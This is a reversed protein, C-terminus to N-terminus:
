EKYKLLEKSVSELVIKIFDANVYNRKKNIEDWDPLHDIPQYRFDNTCKRSRRKEVAFCHPIFTPDRRLKEQLAQRSLQSGIIECNERKLYTIRILQACKRRNCQYIQGM